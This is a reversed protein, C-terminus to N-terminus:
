CPRNHLGNQEVCQVLISQAQKFLAEIRRLHNDIKEGRGSKIIADDSIKVAYDSIKKLENIASENSPDNRTARILCDGIKKTYDIIHDTFADSGALSASFIWGGGASPRPPPSESVDMRRRARRPFAHSSLTPTSNSPPFSGLEVDCQKLTHKAQEYLNYVAEYAHIDINGDFSHRNTAEELTAAASNSIQELLAIASTNSPYNKKVMCKCDIIANVLRAAKGSNTIGSSIIIKRIEQGIDVSIEPRLRIDGLLSTLKKCIEIRDGVNITTTLGMDEIAEQIQGFLDRIYRTPRGLDRIARLLEKSATYLSGPQIWSLVRKDATPDLEDISDGPYRIGGFGCSDADIRSVILDTGDCSWTGITSEEICNIYPPLKSIIIEKERDFSVHCVGASISRIPFPYRGCVRIFAEIMPAHLGNAVLHIKLNGDHIDMISLVQRLYGEVVGDIPIPPDKEQISKFVHAMFVFQGNEVVLAVCGTLGDTYLDINDLNERKIVIGEDMGVRFIKKASPMM